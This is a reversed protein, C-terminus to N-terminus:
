LLGQIEDPRAYKLDALAAVIARASRRCHELVDKDQGPGTAAVSWM